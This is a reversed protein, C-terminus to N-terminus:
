IYNDVFLPIVPIKIATSSRKQLPLITSIDSEDVDRPIPENAPAVTFTFMELM